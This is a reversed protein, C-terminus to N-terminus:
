PKPLEEIRHAAQEIRATPATLSFRLLGAGAGGMGVAPTCVIGAKELLWAAAEMDKMAPPCAALVYFTASPVLTDWGSRKLAGCLIDRRHTYKRRNQEVCQWPGELAAQAADQVAGCVGSDVNTKVRGLAAVVEANGAMWGVRWGTMNFTKSLSHFEVAVQRAGAVQLLSPPPNDDLYMEAYSADHALVIEHARCFAVADTFFDLSATAATPNNPYNLWLVKAKQAVASPVASLDPLFGNERKLPLRHSDAGCFAATAAYVPYGPDPVLAVDGPDLLAWALHAIGEKSGILAVTEKHPNLEVGFRTQMYACIARRLTLKGAYSPYRHNEPDRAARKLAEIIHNPTPEVPDGVGLDIVDIGKALAENKKADLEAFLYKPTKSVRNAIHVTM